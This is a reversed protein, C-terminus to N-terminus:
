KVKVPILIRRNIDEYPKHAPCEDFQEYCIMESITFGMSEMYNHNLAVLSDLTKNM